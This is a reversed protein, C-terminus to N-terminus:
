SFFFIRQDGFSGILGIYFLVDDVKHKHINRLTLVVDKLAKNFPPLYESPENLLGDALNYNYDRIDDINVILRREGINLMRKIAEHYNVVNKSM